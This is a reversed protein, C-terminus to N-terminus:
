GLGPASARGPRGPFANLDPVGPAFPLLSESRNIAPLQRARRSLRDAGAPGHQPSRAAMGLAPRWGPAAGTPRSLAKPWCSSTPLCCATARWACMPPSNAPARCVPAPALRGDLIAAKLLRYLRLQRAEGAGAALDDLAALVLALVDPEM